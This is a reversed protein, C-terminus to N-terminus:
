GWLAVTTLNVTSAMSVTGEGSLTALWMTESLVTIVAWAVYHVWHKELEAPISLALLTAASIAVLGVYLRLRLSM